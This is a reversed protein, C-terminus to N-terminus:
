LSQAFRNVVKPCSYNYGKTLKALTWYNKPKQQFSQEINECRRKRETRARKVYPSRKKDGQYKDIYATLPDIYSQALLKQLEQEWKQLEQNQQTKDVVTLKTETTEPEPSQAQVTLRNLSFWLLFFTIIGTAIGVKIPTMTTEGWNRIISDYIINNRYIVKTESFDRYEVHSHYDTFDSSNGLHEMGDVTKIIRTAM